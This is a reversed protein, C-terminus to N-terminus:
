KIYWITVYFGAGFSISAWSYIDVGSSASLVNLGVTPHSARDSRVMMCDLILTCGAPAAGVSTWTTMTVSGGHYWTRRYITKGDHWKTGTDVEQNLAYDPNFAKLASSTVVDTASPAFGSSFNANYRLATAGSGSTTLAINLKVLDSIKVYVSDHNHGFSAYLSDHDHSLPAYLSNHDHGQLALVEAALDEYCDCPDGDKSCATGSSGGGCNCRWTCTTTNDKCKWMYCTVYPQVNNHPVTTGFGDGGTNQNVATANQNVATANQNVATANQNTATANQNTATANLVDSWRNAPSNVDIRFMGTNTPGPGWGGNTPHAHPNQIHTHPDQIHTHANQLHTHANQLHTHADQLHTHRPMETVGLAYNYVGTSTEGFNFTRTEGRADTFNGVGVPVRGEGWPEWEGYIPAGPTTTMYISGVPHAKLFVCEECACECTCSGGGGPTGGNDIMAELDGYTLGDLKTSWVVDGTDAYKASAFPASVLITILLVAAIRTFKRRM